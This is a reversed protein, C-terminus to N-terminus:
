TRCFEIAEDWTVSEVPFKDTDLGAVADKNEGEGSFGSPNSKMVTRFEAQTVEYKGMWFGKTLRVEIQDEGPRREPEGPPSGM